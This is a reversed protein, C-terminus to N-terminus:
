HDKVIPFKSVVDCVSTGTSADFSQMTAQYVEGIVYQFVAPEHTGDSRIQGDTKFVGVPLLIECGPRFYNAMM